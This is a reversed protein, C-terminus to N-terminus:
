SYGAITVAQIVLGFVLGLNGLTLRRRLTPDIPWTPM